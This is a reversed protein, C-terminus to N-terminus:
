LELVLYVKNKDSYEEELLVINPHKARFLCPYVPM